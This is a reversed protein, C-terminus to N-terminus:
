THRCLANGAVWFRPMHIILAETHLPLGTPHPLGSFEFGGKKPNSAKRWLLKDTDRKPNLCHHFGVAHKCSECQEPGYVRVCCPCALAHEYSSLSNDIEQCLGEFSFEDRGIDLNVPELIVGGRLESPPPPEWRFHWETRGDEHTTPRDPCFWPLGMLLKQRSNPNLYGISHM